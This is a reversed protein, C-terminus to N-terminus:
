TGSSTGKREGLFNQAAYFRPDDKTPARCVNLYRTAFVEWKTADRLESIVVGDMGKPARSITVYGEFKGGRPVSWFVALSPRPNPNPDSDDHYSYAFLNQHLLSLAEELSVGRLHTLQYARPPMGQSQIIVTRTRYIYKSVPAYMGGQRKTAAITVLLVIVMTFGIALM